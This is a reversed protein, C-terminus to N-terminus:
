TPFVSMLYEHMVETHMYQMCINPVLLTLSCTFCKLSPFV